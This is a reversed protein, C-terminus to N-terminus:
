SAVRELVAGLRAALVDPSFRGAVQDKLTRARAKVAAGGELTSAVSDALGAVDGVSFFRITPLGDAVERNPPIDTLAGPLGSAILEVLALSLGEYHTAFLFADALGYLCPLDRRQGLLRVRGGLSQARQKLEAELPGAGAVLLHARPRRQLIAPMAELAELHGKSRVLRGVSLVIEADAPLALAARTRALEDATCPRYREPDVSNPIVTVREREVGVVEIWRNAVHHSVAICASDYAATERDFSLLLARLGASGGFETLAANDFIVNQWTTVQPVGASRAAIRAVLHSMLLQANVVNPRHRQMWASLEAAAGLLGRRSRLAKLPVLSAVHPRLAPLLTERDHLWAVHNRFRDRPLRRIVSLLNHEAGGEGLSDIVHLVDIPM